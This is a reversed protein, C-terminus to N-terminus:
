ATEQKLYVTSTPFAFEIGMKEFAEKIAFNVQQQIDAHETWDPSEIYYITEFNLSFDGFNKFKSRGFTTKEIGEIITKIVEPITRLKEVPTDYTVGVAFSMRRNMMKKYNQIKTDLLVSNSIVIEEGSLATLRISKIGIKEVTGMNGDFIIFDGVQFPKDLYITVATFLDKFISQAALAIAIGSIGFGAILSTVNVGFNSLVLIIAIVWVGFKVLGGLAQAIAAGEGNGGERERTVAKTIIYTIIREIIKVLQVVIVVIILYNLPKGAVDPMTLFQLAFYLGVGGYFWWGIKEILEVFFDDLDTATNRAMAKMKVIVVTKLIKFFVVTGALIGLAILYELTSNGFFSINLFQQM